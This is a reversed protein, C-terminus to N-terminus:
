AGLVSSIAAPLTVSVNVADGLEGQATGAVEEFVNVIIGGGVASAPAGIVAIHWM